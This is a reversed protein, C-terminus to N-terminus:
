ARFAAYLLSEAPKLEIALVTKDLLHDLGRGFSPQLGLQGPMQAVVLTIRDPPEKGHATNSVISIKAVKKATSLDQPRM